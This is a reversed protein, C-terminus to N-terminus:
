RFTDYEATRLDLRREHMCVATEHLDRVATHEHNSAVVCPVCPQVCATAWAHLHVHRILSCSAERVCALLAHNDMGHARARLCQISCHQICPVRWVRVGTACARGCACLPVEMATAMTYM